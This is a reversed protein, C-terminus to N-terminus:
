LNPSELDGRLGPGSNDRDIARTRHALDPGPRQVYVTSGDTPLGSVAHSLGPVAGSAAINGQGLATGVDLWYNTAGLGAARTQRCGNIAEFTFGSTVDPGSGSATWM